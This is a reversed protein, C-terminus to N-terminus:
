VRIYLICYSQSPTFPYSSLVVDSFLLSLRHLHFVAFSGCYVSRFLVCSQSLPALFDFCRLVFLPIVVAYVPSCVCFRLSRLSYSHCVCVCVCVCLTSLSLLSWSRFSSLFCDMWGLHQVTPGATGDMWGVYGFIVEM